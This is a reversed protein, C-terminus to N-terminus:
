DVALPEVLGGGTAADVDDAPLVHGAVGEQGLKVAIVGALIGLGGLLQVATMEQGLLLWAVVVAFLVESLGVFSALTPGLIRSAAIGFVYALAAAVLALELVAVWWPFTAGAVAIDATSARMPLIGVAGSLLLAVAGVALGGGAFAIPPLADEQRASLLFFVALGVAALLGWLVGIVDLEAGSTVDLVLALGVLAIATGVLTLRQPRQGHRAWLWGVILVPGLYELLLAVGVSLREVASFYALQCGAVALLGYATVIAGNRRLLGWRGRLALVTPVLLILAAGTIRATVIAGPSWGVEILTTAFTGSTGFTFASLLAALLGLAFPSSGATTPAAPDITSSPSNSSTTGTTRTTM